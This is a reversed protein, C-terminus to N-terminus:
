SSSLFIGGTPKPAAVPATPAQPSPQAVSSVGQSPAFSSTADPQIPKQQDSVSMVGQSPTFAM